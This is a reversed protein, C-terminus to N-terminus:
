NHGEPIQHCLLMDQIGTIDEFDALKNEIEKASV